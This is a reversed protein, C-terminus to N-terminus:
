GEPDQRDEEAVEPSRPRNAQGGRPSSLRRRTDGVAPWQPLRPRWDPDTDMAFSETAAEVYNHGFKGMLDLFKADKWLSARNAGTRKYAGPFAYSTAIQTERSGAWQAFLWTTPHKRCGGM